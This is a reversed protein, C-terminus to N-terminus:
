TWFPRTRKRGVFQQVELNVRKKRKDRKEMTYRKLNPWVTDRFYSVEKDAALKVNYVKLQEVIDKWAQLKTERTIEDSFKGFIIPTVRIVSLVHTQFVNISDQMCM